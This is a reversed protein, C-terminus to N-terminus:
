CILIIVVIMTMMNHELQIQLTVRSPTVLVVGEDDTHPLSKLRRLEGAAEVGPVGADPAHTVM